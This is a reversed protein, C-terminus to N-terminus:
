KFALQINLKTENASGDGSKIFDHYIQKDVQLFNRFTRAEAVLVLRKQLNNSSDPTLKGNPKKRSDYINEQTPVKERM